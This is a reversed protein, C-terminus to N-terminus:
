MGQLMRKSLCFLGDARGFGLNMIIVPHELGDIMGAPPSM